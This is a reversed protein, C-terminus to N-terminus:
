RLPAGCNQCSTRTIDVLSGCYRCPIRVIERVIVQGPIGPPLGEDPPVEEFCPADAPRITPRGLRENVRQLGIGPGVLGPARHLAETYAAAAEELRGACEAAYGAAHYAEASEPRLQQAKRFADIAEAFRQLSLFAQGRHLHAEYSAPDGEIARTFEHLAGAGNGAALQQLGRQLHYQSGLSGFLGM